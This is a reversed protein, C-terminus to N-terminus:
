ENDAPLGVVRKVKFWSTRLKWFKSSEMAEIRTKLQEVELSQYPLLDESKIDKGLSQKVKFWSTRLKWFKSSEMAEVRVRLQQLQKTRELRQAIASTPEPEAPKSPETPTPPQRVMLEQKRSRRKLDQNLPAEPFNEISQFQRKIRDVTLELKRVKPNQSPQLIQIQELLEFAEMFLISSNGLDLLLSEAKQYDEPLGREILERAYHLKYYPFDPDLQTAKEFDDLSQSYYGQYTPYFGKCYFLSAFMLDRLSSTVPSGQTLNETVLDFYRRYNFYTPCFDWPFVDEMVDIQWSSAPAALTDELFDLAESVVEPSGFHLMIRIYNFRLVLSKPFASIGKKYIKAVSCLWEEVPIVHAIARHYNYLVSERALDIYHHSSVTEKNLEERLRRDNYIGMKQLITSSGFEYSPLWGKQLIARKQYPVSLGKTERLQRPKAALFTLFRFYQSAVKTLAFEERVIAAGKKARQKFETWNELIKRIAPTLNDADLEYTLVGEREGVFLTLVNDKQVVLGCGMSLAEIGRTPLASPHRVYTYCVKTKGLNKLYDDFGDFGNIMKLKLNPSRLVQHLLEAKDPHYPHLTTGSFFLDLGRDRDSLAPLDEAIGFSKPFTSVPVNALKSVDNWESQDTVLIEDLQQLWPYAVQIQLDYDGTQGFIPCPLEQINPPILHWEVMQCIYLDPPNEEDYFQHIDAYPKNPLDDPHFSINAIAFKRDKELARLLDWSGMRSWPIQALVNIKPKHILALLNQAHPMSLPTLLRIAENDDGGMWHTVGTYFQVEEGEFRGLGELAEKTKGILGLAAYTQWEQSNRSLAVATYNGTRFLQDISNSM